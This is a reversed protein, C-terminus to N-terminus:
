TKGTATSSTRSTRDARGQRPPPVSPPAVRQPPTQMATRRPLSIQVPHQRRNPDDTTTVAATRRATQEAPNAVSNLSAAHVGSTTCRIGTTGSAAPCITTAGRRATTNAATSRKARAQSPSEANNRHNRLQQRHCSRRLLPLLRCRARRHWQRRLSHRSLRVRHAIHHLARRSCHLQHDWAARVRALSNRGAASDEPPQAITAPPAGQPPAPRFRRWAKPRYTCAPACRFAPPATRPTASRLMKESM